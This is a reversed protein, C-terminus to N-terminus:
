GPHNDVLPDRGVHCMTILSGSETVVRHSNALGDVFETVARHITSGYDHWVITAHEAALDFATLADSAVTEPDHGGDIFIM